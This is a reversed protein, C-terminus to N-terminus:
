KIGLRELRRLTEEADPSPLREGRLQKRQIEDLKEQIRNMEEPDRTLILKSMQEARAEDYPRNAERARDIMELQRREFEGRRPTDCGKGDPKPSFASLVAILGLPILLLLAYGFADKLTSM